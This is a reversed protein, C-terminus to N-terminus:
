RRPQGTEQEDSDRDIARPKRRGLGVSATGTLGEHEEDDRQHRPEQQQNRALGCRGETDLDRRKTEEHAAHKDHEAARLQLVFWSGDFDDVTCRRTPEDCNKQDNAPRRQDGPMETPKIPQGASM